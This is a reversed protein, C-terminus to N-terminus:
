VNLNTTHQERRAVAPIASGLDRGIIEAPNAHHRSQLRSTVCRDPSLNVFRESMWEFEGRKQFDAVFSADQRVESLM